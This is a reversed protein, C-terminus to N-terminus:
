DLIIEPEPVKEDSFKMGSDEASKVEKLLDALSSFEVKCGEPMQEVHERLSEIAEEMTDGIATVWGIESVGQPDPPVCVLDGKKCSYGIKVWQDLEEPIKFVGWEDRDVKFIAQVGVAAAPVPDILIGNAGQWMINGMNTTMECM